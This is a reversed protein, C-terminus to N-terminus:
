DDKTYSEILYLLEALHLLSRAIREQQTVSGM